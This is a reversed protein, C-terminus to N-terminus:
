TPYNNNKENYALKDIYCNNNASAKNKNKWNNFEKKGIESECFAIIDPLLCRAIEMRIHDPIQPIHSEGRTDRFVFEICMLLRKFWGANIYEERLFWTTLIEQEKRQREAEKERQKRQFEEWDEIDEEERLVTRNDHLLANVRKWFKKWTM